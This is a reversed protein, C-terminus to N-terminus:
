HIQIEVRRNKARGGASNNDSAPVQSGKGAIEVSSERIGAQTLLQRAYEARQMSIQMNLAETGSIDTHGTVEVSRKDAKMMFEKIKDLRYKEDQNLNCQCKGPDFYLILKEPPTLEESVVGVNSSDAKVSGEGAIEKGPNVGANQGSCDKRVKCVYAYSSGGIWIALLVILFIIPNKM